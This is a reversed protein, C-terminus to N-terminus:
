LSVAASAAALDSGNESKRLRLDVDGIGQGVLQLAKLRWVEAWRLCNNCRRHTCGPLAGRKRAAFSWALSDASALHRYCKALGTLKFGFGHLRISQSALDAVLGEVMQTHQRRCVSGLGVLPQQPLPTGAAAYLEVHRHYDDREWGQLVPVWPLEPALERLRLWNEVTLQQHEAVTKKTKERVIPECMWDQVAAWALRGLKQQWQRVETAYQEPSITWRGCKNLETFGGSDLAWEGVARM